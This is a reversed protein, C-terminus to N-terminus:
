LARFMVLADVYGRTPHLFARPLQGVVTFGLSLWLKVARENVSVVFNFQMARFGKERAYDLSHLCMFRAVGRGVAHANTMYGCNSVHNGGGAQNPRIYYTGLIQGEDELVFTEKDDGTWYALAEAESMERALTYTEGSRITPGIIAWIADNDDIQARRIQM